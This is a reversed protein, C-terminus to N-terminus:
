NRLIGISRQDNGSHIHGVLRNGSKLILLMTTTKYSVPVAQGDCDGANMRQKKHPRHQENTETKQTTNKKLKRQRRDKTKNGINGTDRSQVNKIKGKPKELTSEICHALPYTNKNEKRAKSM